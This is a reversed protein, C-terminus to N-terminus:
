IAQKIKVREKSKISPLKPPKLQDKCDLIKTLRNNCMNSIIKNKSKYNEQKKNM